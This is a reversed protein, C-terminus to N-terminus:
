FYKLENALWILWFFPYALYNFISGGNHRTVKASNLINGADTTSPFAHLGISFALWLAFVKTYITPASLFGYHSLLVTIITNGILPGASIWFLQSIKKPAEHDVYGAVERGFQFYVVKIVKVNFLRCFLEHSLEHIIVGPFTITSVLWSPLLFM